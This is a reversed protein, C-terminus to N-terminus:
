EIVRFVGRYDKANLFPELEFDDLQYKSAGKHLVDVFDDVDEKSGCAIIFIKDDNMLRATGEVQLKSACKLVFNHLFGESSGISFAVKLCLKM